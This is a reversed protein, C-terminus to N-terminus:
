PSSPKPRPPRSPPPTTTNKPAPQPPRSPTCRGKTPSPCSLDNRSNTMVAHLPTCPQICSLNANLTGLITLAMTQQPSNTTTDTIIITMNDMITATLTVEDKVLINTRKVLHRRGHPHDSQSVQLQLTAPSFDGQHPLQHISTLTTKEMSLAVVEIKRVGQWFQHSKSISVVARILCRRFHLNPMM